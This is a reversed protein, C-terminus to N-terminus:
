TIQSKRLEFPPHSFKQRGTERALSNLSQEERSARQAAAHVAPLLCDRILLQGLQLTDCTSWLNKGQGRDGGRGRRECVSLGRRIFASSVGYKKSIGAVGWPDSPEWHLSPYALGSCRLHRAEPSCSRAPRTPRAGM